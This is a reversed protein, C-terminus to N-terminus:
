QISQAEAFAAPLAATPKRAACDEVMNWNPRKEFGNEAAKRMEEELAGIV